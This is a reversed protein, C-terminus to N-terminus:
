SSVWKAGRYELKSQVAKEYKTFEASLSHKVNKIPITSWPLDAKKAAAAASSTSDEAKAESGSLQQAPAGNPALVEYPLSTKKYFVVFNSLIKM